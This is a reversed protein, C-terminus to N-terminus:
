SNRVGTQCKVGQSRELLASYHWFLLRNIPQDIDRCYEGNSLAATSLYGHCICCMALRRRREILAVFSVDVETLYWTGVVFAHLSPAGVEEGLIGSNLDSLYEARKAVRAADLDDVTQELLLKAGTVECRDYATGFGGDGLMEANEALKAQNLVLAPAFLDEIGQIVSMDVRKQNDAQAVDVIRVLMM